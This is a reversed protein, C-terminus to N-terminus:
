TWKQSYVLEEYEGSYMMKAGSTTLSDISGTKALLGTKMVKGDTLDHISPSVNNCAGDDVALVHGSKTVTIANSEDGIATGYNAGNEITQGTCSFDSAYWNGGSLAIGAPDPSSEYGPGQFVTSCTAWGSAYTCENVQANYADAFWLNGSGDVQVSYIACGYLEDACFNNTTGIAIPGTCSAGKPTVDECIIIEAPNKDDLNENSAVLSFSGFVTTSTIGLWGLYGPGTYIETASGKACYYINGNDYDVIYAAKASVAVVSNGDGSPNTCVVKAKAPSASSGHPALAIAGPDNTILSNTGLARTPAAPQIVSTAFSVPLIYSLLLVTMVAFTLALSFKKQFKEM